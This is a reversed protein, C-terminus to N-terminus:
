IIGLLVHVSKVTNTECCEGWGRGQDPEMDTTYDCGPNMCIAPVCSDLMMSDDACMADIDKYGYAECLKQLKHAQSIETRAQGLPRGETQDTM